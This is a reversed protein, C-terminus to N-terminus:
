HQPRMGRGPLTVIDPMGPPIPINHQACFEGIPMDPPCGLASIRDFFASMVETQATLAESFNRLLRALEPLEVPEGNAGRELFRFEDESFAAALRELTIDRLVRRASRRIGERVDASLSDWSPM